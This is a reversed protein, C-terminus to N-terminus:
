PCAVLRAAWQAALREDTLVAALHFHVEDIGVTGTDNDQEINLGARWTGSLSGVSWAGGPVDTAIVADDMILSLTTGDWRLGFRNFGTPEVLASVSAYDTNDANRLRATLYGFEHPFDFHDVQYEVGAVEFNTDADDARLYIHWDSITDAARYMWGILAIHGPDPELGASLAAAGGTGSSTLALQTGPFEPGPTSNVPPTSTLDHGNGSSDAARTAGDGEFEWFLAPVDAMVEVPYCDGSVASPAVGVSGQPIFTPIVPQAVRSQGGLTGNSMKKVAVAVREQPLALVDVLGPVMSVNGDEDETVSVTRIRETRSVRPEDTSAM